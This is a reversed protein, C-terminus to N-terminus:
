NKIFSCKEVKDTGIGHILYMGSPWSSVDIQTNTQGTYISQGTINTIVIPRDLEGKVQIYAQAPNPFVQIQHEHAQHKKSLQTLMLNTKWYSIMGSTTGIAMYRNDPNWAISRSFGLEGLKISDEVKGNALKWIYVTSDEGSSSLWQNNAAYSLSYVPAKHGTLRYARMGDSVKWININKDNGGSAIYQNDPSFKITNVQGTHAAINRVLAGTQANWIKVRGDMSASALYMGDSSYDVALVSGTHASINLVTAGTNVDIIRISGNYGAIAIKTEDPSFALGFAGGNGVNINRKWVPIAGTYDYLALHSSEEILAFMTGSASFSAGTYCLISTDVREYIIDGTQANWLTVKANHCETGTLLKTGDKSIAVANCSNGEPHANNSWILETTQSYGFSLICCLMWIFRYKM